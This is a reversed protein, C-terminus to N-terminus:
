MGLLYNMYIFPLFIQSSWGFISYQIVQNLHFSNHSGYEIRSMNYVIGSFGQISWIEIHITGKDVIWIPSPIFSSQFPM